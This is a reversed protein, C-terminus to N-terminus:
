YRRCEEQNCLYGSTGASPNELIAKLTFSDFSQSVQYDYDTETRPDKPISSLFGPMLESKYKSVPPFVYDKDGAIKTSSYTLLAVRISELDQMRQEDRLATDEGSFDNEAQKANYRILTNQTESHYSLTFNKGDESAKYTYLYPDKNIPDRSNTAILNFPKITNTMETFSETLPYLGTNNKYKVLAIGLKKITSSRQTDRDLVAEPSKDIEPTGSGSNNLEPTPSPEPNSVAGFNYINILSDGLSSLTPEHLGHKALNNKIETLRIDTFKKGPNTADYGNKADDVDTYKPNGTTSVQLPSTSFIHVEDGDALGDKDSDNNNPDTSLKFEELNLLGDRDPDANDGCTNEQTKACSALGFYKLQWEPSTTINITESTPIPTPTPTAIQSTNASNQATQKDTLRFYYIVVLYAALAILIVAVLGILLLKKNKNIFKKWTPLSAEEERATLTPDTNEPNKKPGQMRTKDPVNFFINQTTIKTAQNQNNPQPNSEDM